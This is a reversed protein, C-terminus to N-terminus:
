TVFSAVRFLFFWKFRVSPKRVVFSDYNVSFPEFSLCLKGYCGGSGLLSKKKDKGLKKSLIKDLLQYQHSLLKQNQMFYFFSLNQLSTSKYRM